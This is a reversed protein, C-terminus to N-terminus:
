NRFECMILLLMNLASIKSSLYHKGALSIEIYQSLEVPLDLLLLKFLHQLGKISNNGLNDIM